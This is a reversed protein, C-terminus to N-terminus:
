DEVTFSLVNEHDDRTDSVIKLVEGTEDSVLVGDIGNTDFDWTYNGCDTTFCGYGLAKLVKIVKM